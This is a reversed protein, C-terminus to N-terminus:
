KRTLIVSSITNGMSAMVINTAGAGFDAAANGTNATGSSNENYTMKFQGPYRQLFYYAIAVAQKGKELNGLAYQSYPITEFAYNATDRLIIGDCFIELSKTRKLLQEAKQIPEYVGLPLFTKESSNIEITKKEGLICGFPIPILAAVFPGMFDIMDSEWDFLSRFWLVLALIILLLGYIWVYKMKKAFAGHPLVTRWVNLNNPCSRKISQSGFCLLFMGVIMVITALM